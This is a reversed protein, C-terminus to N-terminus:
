CLELTQYKLWELRVALRKQSAFTEPQPQHMNLLRALQRSDRTRGPVCDRSSYSHAREECHNWSLWWLQLKRVSVLSHLVRTSVPIASRPGKWGPRALCRNPKEQDAGAARRTLKRAGM